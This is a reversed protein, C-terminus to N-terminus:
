PMTVTVCLFARKQRWYLFRTTIEGTDVFAITACRPALTPPMPMLLFSGSVSCYLRRFYSIGADCEATRRVSAPRPSGRAGERFDCLSLLTICHSFAVSRDSDATSIVLVLPYVAFCKGLFSLSIFSKSYVHSLM